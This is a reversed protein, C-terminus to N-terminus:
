KKKTSYPEGILREYAEATIVGNEVDERALTRVDDKLEEPTQDFTRAGDKIRRWYSRAIAKVAM